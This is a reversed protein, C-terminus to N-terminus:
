GNEPPSMLTPSVIRPHPRMFYKAPSVWKTGSTVGGDKVFLKSYSRQAHTHIHMHAHVTLTHICHEHVGPTPGSQTKNQPPTKTKEGLISAQSGGPVRKDGRMNKLFVPM